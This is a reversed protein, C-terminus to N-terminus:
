EPSWDVPKGGIGTHPGEFEPLGDAMKVTPLRFRTYCHRQIEVDEPHDLSGLAIFTRGDMEFTLSSGCTGCFRRVVGDSSVYREAEGSTWAFVGDGFEVFSMFPAGSVKRCMGCHCFSAWKPAESARYRIAGCLCGGSTEM